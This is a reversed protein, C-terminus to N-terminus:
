HHDHKEGHSHTDGRGTVLADVKGEAALDSLAEQLIQEIRESTVGLVHANLTLEVQEPQGTISGEHDAPRRADTVSVRLWSGQGGKAFGKIHGIVAGKEAVCRKALREILFIVAQDHSFGSEETTLRLCLNVSYPELILGDM